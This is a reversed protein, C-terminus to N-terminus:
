RGQGEKQKIFEIIEGWSDFRNIDRMSTDNINWPRNYVCKTGKYGVFNHIGDDIHAVSKILAGKINSFVINKPNIFPFRENIWKCKDIVTNPKYATVVVIDFNYDNQLKELAEYAGPVVPLNAYLGPTDLLKLLYEGNEKPVYNTIYWSNIESYKLPRHITLGYKGSLMDDNYTEIWKPVLDNLTDDLDVTIINSYLNNSM